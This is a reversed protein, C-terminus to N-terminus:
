WPGRNQLEWAREACAKMLEPGLHGHARLEALRVRSTFTDMELTARVAIPTMRAISNAAREFIDQLVLGFPQVQDPRLRVSM